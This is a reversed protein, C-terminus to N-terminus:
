PTLHNSWLPVSSKRSLYARALRLSVLEELFGAVGLKKSM